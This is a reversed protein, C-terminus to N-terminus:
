IKYAPCNRNCGLLLTRWLEVSPNNWIEKVFDGCRVVDLGENNETFSCPYFSGKVNVYSSFLASECPEIYPFLHKYQQHTEVYKLFKPATCSDFGFPIHNVLLRTVLDSFMTDTVPNFHEGRGRQKLSLFVTANLKELRMDDQIDYLLTYCKSWTESALLQHINVQKLGYDTLKKIANYCTDKDYNSVSVAGCMSVLYEAWNDDLHRGNITINPVIENSRCYAMMKRLDPNANLDGIGFAVQTLNGNMKDLITKFTNFSMNMGKSTNNKYCFKCGHDCITSVEIDLIEPGIRSYLPDEEKTRGWRMFKGTDTDFQWKYSASNYCKIM